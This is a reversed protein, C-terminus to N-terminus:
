GVGDGVVQSGIVCLRGIKEWRASGGGGREGISVASQIRIKSGGVGRIQSIATM